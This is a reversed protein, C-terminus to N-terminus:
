TTGKLVNPDERLLMFVTSLDCQYEAAMLIPRQDVIDPDTINGDEVASSPNSDLLFRILRCDSRAKLALHLPLRGLFDRKFCAEQYPRCIREMTISVTEESGHQIALHLPLMGKDDRKTLQESYQDLVYDLVPPSAECQLAAHLPLFRHLKSIQLSSLDHEVDVSIDISGSRARKCSECNESLVSRKKRRGVEELVPSKSRPLTINLGTSSRQKDQHSATTVIDINTVITSDEVSESTRECSTSVPNRDVKDVAGRLCLDLFGEEWNGIDDEEKVTRLVLGGGQPWAHILFTCLDHTGSRIAAFLPTEGRVNEKSLGQPYIDVLFKAMELQGERTADHLPLSGDYDLTSVGIPCIRHLDKAIMTHGWRAAFHIAIKGKKSPILAGEPHVRLLARCVEVHGESAAFHLALKGKKSLVAAAEPVIHLMFKVMDTRGERAAYHLPIKGKSNPTVAGRRHKELLLGAVRTNGISAAFHLPLSCDNSSAVQALHPHHIMLSQVIYELASASRLPSEQLPGINVLDQIQELATTTRDANQSLIADLLFLLPTMAPMAISKTNCSDSYSKPSKPERKNEEESL